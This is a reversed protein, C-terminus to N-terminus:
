GGPKLKHTDFRARSEEDMEEEPEKGILRLFNNIDRNAALYYNYQEKDPNTSIETLNSVKQQKM